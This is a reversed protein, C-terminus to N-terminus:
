KHTMTDDYFRSLVKIIKHCYIFISIGMDTKPPRTHCKGKGPLPYSPQKHEEEEDEKVGVEM